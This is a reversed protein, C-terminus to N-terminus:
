GISLRKSLEVPTQQDADNSKIRKMISCNSNICTKLFVQLYAIFMKTDEKKQCNFLVDKRLFSLSKKIKGEYLLNCSSDLHM